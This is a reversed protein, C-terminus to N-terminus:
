DVSIITPNTSVFQTSNYASSILLKLGGGRGQARVGGSSGGKNLKQVLNCGKCGNRAVEYLGLSVRSCDVREMRVHVAFRAIDFDLGWGDTFM